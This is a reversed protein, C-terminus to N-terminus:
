ASCSTKYYGCQMAWEESYQEASSSVEAVFLMAGHPSDTKLLSEDTANLTYEM